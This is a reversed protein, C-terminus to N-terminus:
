AGTPNILDSLTVVTGEKRQFFTMVRGDMM